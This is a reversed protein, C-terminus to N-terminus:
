RACVAPCGDVRLCREGRSPGPGGVFLHNMLHVADSLDFVADGNTDLVVLNGGADIGGECPLELRSGGFLRELVSVADTLNVAGDQSADGPLQWGTASSGEVTGPSGGIEQSTNWSERDGWRAPDALADVIVLSRGQGDTEPFWADDYEFDLLTEGHSSVTIREGANSLDGTFEGAILLGPADYAAAFGELDNVVLLADGPHLAAVAGAAFDFEIGGGLAARTLDATLEGINTIEIFEVDDDDFGPGPDPPHYMIETIRLVSRVFTAENLASWSGDLWTRAKVVTTRDLVIEQGPLPRSEELLPVMLFDSNTASRNLGHVALVNRGPRLLAIRESLDFEEYAIASANPRSSRAVSNWELVDPANAFAVPEGNLYAVFGDDYRVRLRFTGHGPGPATFPIRIYISSNRDRMGAEVDSRILEEFGSSRGYGIGTSGASWRSDDYDLRTWGLGLAGDEPVLYRAAAGDTVHVTRDVAGTVRASPSIEGSPLRPDSGDETYYITGDPATVELTFGAPIIGGHQSFAPAEVDPYFGAARYQEIVLDTRSSFINEICDNKASEWTAPTRYPWRAAEAIFAREVEACRALLRRTNMERTMAGDNFFHKHIRDGLLTLYDPHGERLLMSFISGPGDGPQRGPQGRGTCNGARRLFGDADNLFFKFGSGPLTPGVCRYEDESEGFMFLLMFDIYHPVDLLTRVAEYDSRLSKIRRWTSGDGDYPVGPDAWGGVNWNGNIAEYDEKAGGLYRALMDANWRERLHYQGWYAGNIYLHVFRGHPNLNGMDLMTDDTFRNSMYFGRQEMDHSGGRLEIQDFVRAAPIGRDHGAFLPFRLKRAGYVSRFYLRFNKKAFNTFEGGFHKIGCDEQFGASGDPLILELSARVENLTNISATSVLSMTPLDTLAGRMQPGWTRHETISRRMLRSSVVDDLFVYTHTDVNTPVLGDKFAAARLVTTGSVVIPGTYVTGREGAPEGGDTTYRIEAEPTSTTIAVEIPSDYLGRDHSFRTDGVLGSLGEGENAAGPTPVSFYVASGADLFGYSVNRRQPPYGPEFAHAVSGEPAVLALYEGDSALEFSAHLEGGPPARDKGSAFVVLFEGPPLDVDPFRWGPAAPDDTLAWGELPVARGGPNHVEIWDSRDADEDEFSGGNVALFESIFPTEQALVPSSLLIAALIACRTSGAPRISFLGPLLVPHGTHPTRHETLPVDFDNTANRCAAARSLRGAALTMRGPPFLSKFSDTMDLEQPLAPEGWEGDM